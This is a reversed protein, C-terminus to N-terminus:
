WWNGCEIDVGEDETEAEAYKGGPMQLQSRPLAARLWAERAAKPRWDARPVKAVAAAM